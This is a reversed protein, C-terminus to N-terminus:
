RVLDEDVQDGSDAEAEAPATEKSRAAADEVAARAALEALALRLQREIGKTIRQCAAVHRRADREVTVRVDIGCEPCSLEYGWEDSM